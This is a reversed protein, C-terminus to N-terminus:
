RKRFGLLASFYFYVRPASLVLARCLLELFLTLPALAARSGWPRCSQRLALPPTRRPHEPFPRPRLALPRSILGCAAGGPLAPHAGPRLYRGTRPAAAGRAIASPGCPSGAAGRPAATRRAAAPHAERRAPHPVPYSPISHFPISSLSSIATGAM